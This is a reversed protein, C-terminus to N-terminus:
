DDGAALAPEAGMADGFMVEHRLGLYLSVCMAILV